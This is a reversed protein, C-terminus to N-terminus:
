TRPTKHRESVRAAARDQLAMKGHRRCASAASEKAYTGIQPILGASIKHSNRLDTRGLVGRDPPCSPSFNLHSFSFLVAQTGRLVWRCGCRGGLWTRSYPCHAEGLFLSASLATCASFSLATCAGSEKEREREEM